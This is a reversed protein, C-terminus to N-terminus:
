PPRNAQFQDETFSEGPRAICFEDDWDGAFLKELVRISGPVACLELGLTEALEAAAPTAEDARYAGTELLALSRYNKYIEDRYIRLAKERGFKECTRKFSAMASREGQLWGRTVYLSRIDMAPPKGRELSLGM